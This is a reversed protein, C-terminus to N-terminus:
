ATLGGITLGVPAVNASLGTPQTLVYNAADTGGITYGSAVVTKGNGVNKDLFAGTGLGLTVTDSGRIGVLSGGVLTAATTADYPRNQAAVGGITLAAPSITAVIDTPQALTYNGADAGGLTFNAAVVAKHTGVNKDNFAGTGLGFTVVDSDLVGVLHGGSLTT